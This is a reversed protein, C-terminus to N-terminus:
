KLRSIEAARSRDARFFAARAVVIVGHCNPVLPHDHERNRRPPLFPARQRASLTSWATAM